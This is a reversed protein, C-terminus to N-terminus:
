FMYKLAFQLNRMNGRTGTIVGFNTGSAINGNPNNWNPHNPFNFAEFRFQLKQRETFMFDKHMAFDFGIIGPTIRAGPVAGGSTDTM